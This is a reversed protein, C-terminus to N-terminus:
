AAGLELCEPLLEAYVRSRLYEWAADPEAHPKQPKLCQGEGPQQPCREFRAASKELAPIGVADPFM